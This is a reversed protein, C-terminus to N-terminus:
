SRRADSRELERAAAEDEADSSLVELDTARDVVTSVEQVSPAVGRDADAGVQEQADRVRGAATQIAHDLETEPPM